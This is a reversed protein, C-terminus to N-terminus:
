STRRRYMWVALAIVSVATVLLLTIKMWGFPRGFLRAVGRAASEDYTRVLEGDSWAYSINPADVVNVPIGEPIDMTLLFEEDAIAASEGIQIDSVDVVDRLVVFKDDEFTYTTRQEFASIVPVEDVRDIDVSDIEDNFSTLRGAPWLTGTAGFPEMSSIKRGDLLHQSEKQILVRRPLYGANPDLWLTHKGHADSFALKVTSHGNVAERGQFRANGAAFMSTLRHDVKGSLYGYILSAEQIASLVEELSAATSLKAQISVAGGTEENDASPSERVARLVNDAVAFDTTREGLDEVRGGKIARFGDEREVKWREKDRIVIASSNTLQSEGDVAPSRAFRTSDVRLRSTALRGFSRECATLTETADDAYARSEFVSTCALSCFLLSKALLRLASSPTHMIM